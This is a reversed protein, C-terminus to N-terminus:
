ASRRGVGLANGIFCFLFFPPPDLRRVMLPSSQSQLVLDELIGSALVYLLTYM